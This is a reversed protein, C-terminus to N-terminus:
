VTAASSRKSLPSEGEGNSGAERVRVRCDRAGDGAKLNWGGSGRRRRRAGTTAAAEAGVRLRPIEGASPRAKSRLRSRRFSAPLDGAGHRQVRVGGRLAPVM